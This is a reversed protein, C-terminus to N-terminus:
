ESTTVPEKAFVRDYNELAVGGLREAIARYVERRYGWNIWRHVQELWDCVHIVCLDDFDQDALEVIGDTFRDRITYPGKHKLVERDFHERAICCNLYCLWEVREGVLEAIEHRRDLSLTFGQFYETGYISHFLGARAFEENYGWRKLDNYVGIAHSLYGKQTHAIDDAGIERFYNTLQKFTPSM